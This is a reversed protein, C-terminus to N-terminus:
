KYRSVNIYDNEFLGTGLDKGRTASQHQKIEQRGSRVCHEVPSVM